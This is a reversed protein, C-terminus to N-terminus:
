KNGILKEVIEEVAKYIEDRSKEYYRLPSGFPDEIHTLTGFAYENLLFVKDKVIPYQSLLYKKHRNSMVLVLDAGELLENNVQNSQHNSIDIGIDEMAEVAFKAVEENRTAYIGASLVEINLDKKEVFDKLIGEAMPSRCTNGTCIFVVKM